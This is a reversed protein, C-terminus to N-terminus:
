TMSKSHIFKKFFVHGPRRTKPIARNELPRRRQPLPGIAPGRRASNHPRFRHRSHSRLRPGAQALRQNRSWQRAPQINSRSAWCLVSPLGRKRRGPPRRPGGPPARWRPATRGGQRCFTSVGSRPGGDAGRDPRRFNEAVIPLSKVRCTSVAQEAGEEGRYWMLSM